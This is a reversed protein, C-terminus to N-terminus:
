KRLQRSSKHYLSELSVKDTASSVSVEYRCFYFRHEKIGKLKGDKKHNNVAKVSGQAMRPLVPHEQHCTVDKITGPIPPEQKQDDDGGREVKCATKPNVRFFVLSSPFGQQCYTDNAIERNQAKKLIEIEKGRAEDCEKTVKAERDLGVEKIYDKRKADREIGKLSHAVGNINVTPFHFGGLSEKIKGKKNGKKRL